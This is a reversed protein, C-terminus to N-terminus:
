NPKSQNQKIFRRVPQDNGRIPRQDDGNRPENIPRRTEMERRIQEFRQRLERFRVLQEPTLVKRVAYENAFRLKAVEAQALQVDKIRAEVDADSTQDSYIAMDLAINAERVRRQAEDMLPKREQNLRRIQQVQERSLGLQMLVNQRVDQPQDAKPRQNEQPKVEPTPEQATAMTVFAFSVVALLLTNFIRTKM